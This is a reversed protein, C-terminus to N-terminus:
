NTAKRLTITGTVDLASEAQMLTIYLYGYEGDADPRLIWNNLTTSDSWIVAKRGSNWTGTVTWTYDTYEATGGWPNYMSGAFTVNINVTNM